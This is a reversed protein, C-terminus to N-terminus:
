AEVPTSQLVILGVGLGPANCDAGVAAVLVAHLENPPIVANELVGDRIRCRTGDFPILAVDADLYRIRIALVRSGAPTQSVALIFSRTWLNVGIHTVEHSLDLLTSAQRRADVPLPV